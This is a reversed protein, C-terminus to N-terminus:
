ASYEISTIFKIVILAPYYIRVGPPNTYIQGVCVRVVWVSLWASVCVCVSVSM